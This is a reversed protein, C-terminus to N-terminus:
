ALCERLSLLGRRIWAKVTGVPAQLKGAIESHSYGEVYAYLICNRRVAELGELCHAIKGATAQWEFADAMHQWQSLAREADLQEAGADDLQTERQHDRVWNLALHRTVSYMWGRASGKSSDYSAAQQWINMFADHLIDEAVNLDRVIRKAVGLLRPSEQDYLQKLATTDGRACAHLAQAYDFEPSNSRSPPQVNHPTDPM